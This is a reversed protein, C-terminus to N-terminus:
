SAWKWSDLVSTAIKTRDDESVTTSYSFTIFYTKGDHTVFYQETLNAAQSSSIHVYDEGDIKGTEQVKVDKGGSQTLQAGLEDKIEIIPKPPATDQKIVNINDAFGDKDTLDAVFTDAMETGPVATSPVEWGEPVSYTYGDGKIADGDAPADSTDAADPTKSTSASEKTKSSDSDSDSGGCGALSLATVLAVAAMRSTRTRM